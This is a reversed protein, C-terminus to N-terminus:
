CCSGVGGLGAMLVDCHIYIRYLFIHIYFSV